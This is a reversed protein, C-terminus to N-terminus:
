ILAEYWFGIERYTRSSINECPGLSQLYSSKSYSNTGIVKDPNRCWRSTTQAAFPSLDVNQYKGMPTVYWGRIKKSANRKKITEQSMKVGFSGGKGGLNSNYGNPSLTKYKKIYFREREYAFNEDTIDTEIIDITFNNHGYKRISNHFYNNYL